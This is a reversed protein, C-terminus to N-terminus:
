QEVMILVLTALAGAITSYTAMRNDGAVYFFVAMALAFVLPVSKDWSDWSDHTRNM